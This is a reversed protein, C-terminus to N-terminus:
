KSITAAIAEAVTKTGTPKYADFPGDASGAPWNASDAYQNDDKYLEQLRAIEAKLEAFKAAVAPQKADKEDYLLNHQEAPDKTLDFM